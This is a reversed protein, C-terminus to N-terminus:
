VSKFDTYKEKICEYLKLDIANANRLEDYLDRGLLNHLRKLKEYLDINDKQSVNKRKPQLRVDSLTSSGIIKQLSELSQGYKEVLGVFPLENIARIAREEINGSSETYMEALKVAHFNRCQHDAAIALRTEIYGALSTNRALVSGFSSVGQKAEFAYASAIRDLPHRIFIVPVISVKEIKPPPLPATHSSFCKASPNSIIWRKLEEQRKKLPGGFEKTQWEEDKLCEKFSSDLSTGANKFLHYHLVITKGGLATSDTDRVCKVEEAIDNM